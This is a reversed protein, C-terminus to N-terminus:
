PSPPSTRTLTVFCARRESESIYSSYTLRWVSHSMTARVSRSRSSARSTALSSYRANSSISGNAAIRM